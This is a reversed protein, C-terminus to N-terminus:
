GIRCRVESVVMSGLARNLTAALEPGMMQLEAAWVAAECSVTLVGDREATPRAAGAVATGVTQAWCAQVRALTTVPALTQQLQAIAVALPRPARRRGSRPSV